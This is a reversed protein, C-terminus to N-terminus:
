LVPVMCALACACVCVAVGEAFTKAFAVGEAFTKGLAAGEFTKELAAGEALTGILKMDCFSAGM